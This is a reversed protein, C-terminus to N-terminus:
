RKEKTQKILNLLNRDKLSKILNTKGQRCDKIQGKRNPVMLLPLLNWHYFQLKRTEEGQTIAKGGIIKGLYLHQTDNMKPRKYTGVKKEIKVRYGTEEYAERIACERPKEGKAMRGGPLDWIPYDRRKVLLIKDNEDKIIVFAGQTAM